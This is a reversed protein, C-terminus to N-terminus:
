GAKSRVATKSSGGSGSPQCSHSTRRAVRRQILDGAARRYRRHTGRFVETPTVADTVTYAMVQGDSSTSVGRVRRAGSTVQRILGGQTSVEFLHAAGGIGAEFRVTGEVTWNPVGPNLNWDNTLTRPSGTFRGNAGLRVIKLETEDGRAPTALFALFDGAKSVALARESGPNSTLRRPEGGDLSVTYIDVTLDRSYEDNEREDGTFFLRQSDASWVVGEM